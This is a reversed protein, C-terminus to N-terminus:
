NFFHSKMMNKCIEHLNNRDRKLTEDDLVMGIDREAKSSLM